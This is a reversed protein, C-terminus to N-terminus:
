IWECGGLVKRHKILMILLYQDLAWYTGPVTSPEPYDVFSFVGQRLLIMLLVIFIYFVGYLLFNSPDLSPPQSPPSNLIPLFLRMASIIDTYLNLSLLFRPLM